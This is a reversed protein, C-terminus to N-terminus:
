KVILVEFGLSIMKLKVQWWHHCDGVIKATEKSGRIIWLLLNFIYLPDGHEKCWINPDNLIGSDKDTYVYYQEM